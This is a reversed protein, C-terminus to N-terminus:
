ETSIPLLRCRKVGSIARIRDIMDPTIDDHTDILTYAVEGNSKNIMDSINIKLAALLTTVRGIINPVNDNTIALRYPASRPLKCTPYNVSNTITGYRLFDHIQDAIMIACNEEAQVTSAGLHPISIVGPHTVLTESPFDTIYQRLQGSELGAILAEEKVIDARSFNLLVAGPKLQDVLAQNFFSRTATTAPVHLSVYDVKGLLDRLVESRNVQPSLRWAWNIAIHPDFGYVTMGLQVATNAVMSGIAGLGIVGLSKGQLEDGSFRSKNAEVTKALATDVPLSQVFQIGGIVDRSGLLMGLMVLEKVANANAGPTNFVVVSNDTCQDVPINNVGAGARGIALLSPNIAYDHLNHSRLVIAHPDDAEALEGLTALKKLGAPAIKNYVQVRFTM